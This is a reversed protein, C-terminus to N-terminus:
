DTAPAKGVFWYCPARLGPLGPVAVHREAFVHEPCRYRLDALHNASLRLGGGVSIPQTIAINDGASLRLLNASGSSIANNVFITGTAQLTVPGAGLQTEVAGSTIRSSAGPDAFNISGSALDDGPLGSDKDEIITPPPSSCAFLLASLSLARRIM